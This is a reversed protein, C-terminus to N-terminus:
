GSSQEGRVFYPNAVEAFSHRVDRAEFLFCNQIEAADLNFLAINYGDAIRSRYVFGDFGHSKFVEAIIQTPAYDARDDEPTVPLSFARDVHAWVAWEKQDDDPEYFDKRNADFFLPNATTNRSCDIVTLEKQTKFRAVSIESGIWPRVEGMATEKKSALYLCPIGKSNARGETAANLRPRMRDPPHPAPVELVDDTDGVCESRWGGGLQARWFNRGTEITVQRSQSSAVLEALFAQTEEDFVYRRRSTVAAKFAEYSRWTRFPM